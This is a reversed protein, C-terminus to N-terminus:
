KVISKVVEDVTFMSTKNAFDYCDPKDDICVQADFTINEIGKFLWANIFYPNQDNTYAFYLTTGCNKCFIREAFSSSAYKGVNENESVSPKQTCSFAMFPSSCWIRCTECHCCSLKPEEIIAKLHIAKCLCNGEYEPM